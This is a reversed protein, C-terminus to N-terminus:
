PHGPQRCRVTVRTRENKMRLLEFGRNIAFEKLVNRYQHINQFIMWKKLNVTRIENPDCLNGKIQMSLRTAPGDDDSDMRIPGRSDNCQNGMSIESDTENDKGNRGEYVVM